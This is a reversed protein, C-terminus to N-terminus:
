GEGQQIVVRLGVVRGSLGPQDDPLQRVSGRILAVHHGPVTLRRQRFAENIAEALDSADGEGAADSAVVLIDQEIDWSVRRLAGGETATVPPRILVFPRDSDAPAQQQAFIAPSGLYSAVHGTVGVDALLHNRLATDLAQM